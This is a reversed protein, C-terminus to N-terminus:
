VENKVEDPKREIKEVTTLMRNVIDKYSEGWIGHKKLRDLTKRDVKMTVQSM